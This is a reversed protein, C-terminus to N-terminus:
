PAKNYTHKSDQLTRSLLLTSHNDNHLYEFAVYRKKREIVSANDLFLQQSCQFSVRQAREYRQTRQVLMNMNM